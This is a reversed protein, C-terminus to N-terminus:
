AEILGNVKSTLPDRQVGILRVLGSSFSDMAQLDDIVCKTGFYEHACVADDFSHGLTVCDIGDVTVIHQADLVFNFVSECPVTKPEAISIPFIWKETEALRIPHWPTILLSGVQVLDVENEPIKSEVVCLVTAIAGNTIEIRDGRTVSEVTKEGGGCIHVKGKGHFCVNRSNNFLSMSLLGASKASRLVAGGSSRGGFRGTPQIVCQKVQGSPEPPPLNCFLADAEDRLAKFLAGGYVQPGPDKFNNCVQYIHAYMLSPLYHRGWKRFYDPKIAELVQGKIDQLLALSQDNAPSSEMDKILNQILKSAASVSDESDSGVSLLQMANTVAEIFKCRHYTPLIRDSSGYTACDVSLNYSNNTRTKASLNISAYSSREQPLNEMQLLIDKTQGTQISGIDVTIGWSDESTLYEGLDTKPHVFRAGNLPEVALRCSKAITVKLNAIAHVFITGVFSCDPIFSYGGQGEKALSHLLESDLSYGFGFTNVIGPLSGLRDKYMKLMPLHGRPPIINPEGDTFLMVTSVRNYEDDDGIACLVDLGKELGAWLNTSTCPQLSKLTQLAVNQGSEDMRTMPFVIDASDSFTVIALRDNANLSKIVTTVAHKVVDLITLGFSEREQNEGVLTAECDMSGSVDIVCSVNLHTRAQSDGPDVTILMKSNNDVLARVEIRDADIKANPNSPIQKPQTPKKFHELIMDKLARNPVLESAQLPTRTIPSCGHEAIWGLIASKEYSNGEKDCVPDNMVDLTIPCYFSEPLTSSM